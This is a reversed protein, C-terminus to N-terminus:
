CSVVKMLAHLEKAQGDRAIAFVLIQTRFGRLQILATYTGVPLASSFHGAEDTKLTIWKAREGDNRPLIKILAGPVVAGSQDEVVGKFEQIRENVPMAESARLAAQTDVFSVSQLELSFSSTVTKEFVQLYLDARFDEGASASISYFGPKLPPLVAVGQADTRLSAIHEKDKLFVEVTAGERPKGEQFATIRVNGSSSLTKQATVEICEGSVLGALVLSLAAVSITKM